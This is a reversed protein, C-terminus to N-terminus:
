TYCVHDPHERFYNNMAIQIDFNAERLYRIAPDPEIDEVFEMFTQLKQKQSQDLSKLEKSGMEELSQDIATQIAELTNMQRHGGQYQAFDINDGGGNVYPDDSPLVGQKEEAEKIPPYIADHEVDGM